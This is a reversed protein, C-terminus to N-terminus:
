ACEPGSKRRENAQAIAKAIANAARESAPTDSLAFTHAVLQMQRERDRKGITKWDGLATILESTTAVREGVQLFPLAAEGQSQLAGNPDLLFVPRPRVIFEYLQSSADGIYADAALMYSMDFLRPGDIDVLINSAALAEEPIEPRLRGVKYEPSVHITKRFLMVHPAFILNYAQGADSAFWHLLEPGEDYWSSLHPDFHPNYVFTPRTNDFFKPRAELDINEFKPYGTVEIKTADVGNAVLQEKIKPGAVLSLDFRRHDPHFTVSRDGTGHPVRVFIPAIQPDLRQKVRLCTRETSIVADSAAFICEHSRLRALRTVPALRDLGKAAAAVLRPLALEHWSIRAADEPRILSEIQARIVDSAYAVKTEIDPHLRAMAGAVPALHAVQHAADHNFLFLARPM